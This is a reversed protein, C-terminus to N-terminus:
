QGMLIRELAQDTNIQKQAAIRALKNDIEEQSLNPFIWRVVDESEAYGSEAGRLIREFQTAEDTFPDFWDIKLTWLDTPILLLINDAILTEKIGEYMANQVKKMMSITKVNATRIETATAGSTYEPPTVFGSNIGIRDEYDHGALIENREYDALRTTPAFSDILTGDVGAKKRITYINEPLGYQRLGNENTHMVISEDAFLKMQANQMEMIRMNKAEILRIEEEACSFNLPVGFFPELGNSDQPSKFYAVGIHNAGYFAMNDQKYHEWEEVFAENGLANLTYYYIFLTGNNDLVHHRVLTYKKRKIVKRDIIMAIETIKGASITYVSVDEPLLIRHYPENDSNTAMTVYCGGKGLMKACIEYRKDELDDCLKRLPEILSSDGELEITAEDNVLTCLKKVVVDLPNYNLINEWKQIPPNVQNRQEDEAGLNKINYWFKKWNWNFAM